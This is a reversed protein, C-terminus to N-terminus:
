PKLFSFYTHQAYCTPTSGGGGGGRPHFVRCERNSMIVPPSLGFFQQFPTRYGATYVWFDTAWLHMFVHFKPFSFQYRSAELPNQNIFCFVKTKFFHGNISCFSSKTKVSPIYMHSPTLSSEPCPIPHTVNENM